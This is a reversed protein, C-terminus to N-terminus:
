QFYYYFFILIVNTLSSPLTFVKRVNFISSRKSCIFVSTLACGTEFILSTKRYVRGPFEISSTRLTGLTIGAAAKTRLSPTIVKFSYLPMTIISTLLREPLASASSIFSSTLSSGCVYRAKVPDEPLDTFIHTRNM